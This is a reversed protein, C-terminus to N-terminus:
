VTKHLYIVEGSTYRLDGDVCQVIVRAVDVSEMTRETPFQDKTLIKRLMETEVAGPAITHVRVGLPAGERALILGFLNIGAKAAGYAAFGPFPDRSALSSVNVVVGRQQKKFVPWAAHALYFAASLNTNITEHWEEISMQEVSRVPAVGAAHIIADIRRFAKEARAVLQDVQEHRTVDAAFAVAETSKCLRATEDLQDASRAVLMLRYGRASLEIATARGIGRGGGTIIASPHNM